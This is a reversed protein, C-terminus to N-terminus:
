ACMTVISPKEATNTSTNAAYEADIFEFTDSV